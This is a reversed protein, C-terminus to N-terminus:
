ANNGKTGGFFGFARAAGDKELFKCGTRITQPNQKKANNDM